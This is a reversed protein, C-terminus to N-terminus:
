AKSSYNWLISLAYVAPDADGIGTVTVTVDTSIGKTQNLLGLLTEKEITSKSDLAIKGYNSQITIKYGKQLMKGAEDVLGTGTTTPDTITITASKGDDAVVVKNTAKTSAEKVAKVADDLTKQFEDKTEWATVAIDGTVTVKKTEKAAVTVVEDNVKYTGANTFTLTIETGLKALTKTAEDGSFTALKNTEIKAASVAVRNADKMSLELKGDKAEVEYEGDVIYWGDKADVAEKHYANASAWSDM